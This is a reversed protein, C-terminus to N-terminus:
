SSAMNSSGSRRRNKIRPMFAPASFSLQGVRERILFLAHMQLVYGALTIPWYLRSRDAWQDSRM